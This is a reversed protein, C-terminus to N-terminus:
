SGERSALVPGCPEPSLSYPAAPLTKGAVQQALTFRIVRALDAPQDHLVYHNGCPMLWYVGAVTRAKLATTFVYDAVRVPAVMDHVGWLITAPITSTALTQLFSVEFQRRENLYQITAPIAAVGSQYGFFAALARVEPDEPKLPPTYQTQGMGAGLVSANVAKVAAASTAPDLM